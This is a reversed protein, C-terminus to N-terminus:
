ADTMKEWKYVFFVVVVVVSELFQSLTAVATNCYDIRGFSYYANLRTRAPTQAKAEPGPGLGM